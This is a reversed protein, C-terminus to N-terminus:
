KGNIKEKPTSAIAVMDRYYQLLRKQSYGTQKKLYMVWDDVIVEQIEQSISFRVRVFVKASNGMFEPDCPLYIYPDDPRCAKHWLDRFAFQEDTWRWEPHCNLTKRHMYSIGVNGWWCEKGTKVSKVLYELYDEPKGRVDMLWGLRYEPDRMSDLRVLDGIQPIPSGFSCNIFGTMGGFCRPYSEEEGDAHLYSLSFQLIYDLILTYAKNM